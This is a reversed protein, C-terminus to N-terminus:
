RHVRQKLIHPLVILLVGAMILLIVALWSYMGLNNIDSMKNAISQVFTGDFFGFGYFEPDVFFYTLIDALMAPALAVVTLGVPASWGIKRPIVWLIATPM